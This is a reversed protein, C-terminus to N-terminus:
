LQFDFISGLKDRVPRKRNRKKCHSRFRSFDLGVTIVPSWALKIESVVKKTAAPTSVFFYWFVRTKQRQSQKNPPLFHRDFTGQREHLTTHTSTQADYIHKKTNNETDLKSPFDNGSSKLFHKTSPGLVDYAIGRFRPITTFSPMSFSVAVRCLPVHSCAQKDDGLRLRGINGGGGWPKATISQHPPHMYKNKM